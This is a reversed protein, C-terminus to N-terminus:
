GDPRARAFCQAAAQSRAPERVPPELWMTSLMPRADGANPDRARGRGRPSGRHGDLHARQGNKPKRLRESTVQASTAGALSSPNSHARASRESECRRFLRGASIARGPAVQNLLPPVALALRDDLRTPPGVVAVLDPVGFPGAMERLVVVARHVGPLSAAADVAAPDLELERIPEFRRVSPSAARV